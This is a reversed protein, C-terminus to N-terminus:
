KQALLNFEIDQVICDISLFEDSSFTIYHQISFFFDINPTWSLRILSIMSIQQLHNIVLKFYIGTYSIDSRFSFRIQLAIYAFIAILGIVQKIYILSNNTCSICTSKFFLRASGKRMQLLAPWKSGGSM